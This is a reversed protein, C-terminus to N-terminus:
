WPLPNWGDFGHFVPKLSEVPLHLGPKGRILGVLLGLSAVETIEVILDVDTATDVASITNVHRGPVADFEHVFDLGVFGPSNGSKYFGGAPPVHIGDHDVVGTADTTTLAHADTRHVTNRDGFYFKHFM